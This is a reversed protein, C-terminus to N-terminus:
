DYWITKLLNVFPALIVMHIRRHKYLPNFTPGKFQHGECNRVVNIISCAIKNLMGTTSTLKKIDARQDFFPISTCTKKQKNNRGIM